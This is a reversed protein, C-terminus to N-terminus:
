LVPPPCGAQTFSKHRGVCFSLPYQDRKPLATFFLLQFMKGNLDCVSIRVFYTPSHASFAHIYKYNQTCVDIRFDRNPRLIKDGWANSTYSTFNFTVTSQMLISPVDTPLLFKIILVRNHM